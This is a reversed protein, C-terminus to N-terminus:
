GISRLSMCVLLVPADVIYMIYIGSPDLGRREMKLGDIVVYPESEGKKNHAYM